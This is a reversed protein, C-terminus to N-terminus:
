PLYRWLAADETAGNERMGAIVPRGDADIRVENGQDNGFGGDYVVLGGEGFTPDLAGTEGFRYLAFDLDMGNSVTGAVVTRGAGDVAVAYGRDHGDGGAAGEHVFAGTGSFTADESGDPNYRAVFMGDNAARRSGTIVIRGFADITMARAEDNGGSDFLVLGAVGFSPDPQGLFLQPALVVGGGGGCASLLLLVPLPSRM